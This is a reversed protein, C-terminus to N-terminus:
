AASQLRRRSDSASVGACLGELISGLLRATTQTADDKHPNYETLAFSRVSPYRTLFGNFCALAAERTLGGPLHYGTGPADAPDFADLDIQLCVADVRATLEDMVQSMVAAFGRENVERMYHIRVGLRELLQQEEAEYDRACVIAVDRPDLTAGEAALKTLQADGHGLLAAVGMGHTNGSPTSDDTHGDLHADVYVLGIRRGAGIAARVGAVEGIAHSHDGGIVVPLAGGEIAQRVEQKLAANIPLTRAVKLGTKERISQWGPLPAPNEERLIRQWHCTMGATQAFRELGFARLADPGDACGYDEAGLGFAYGILAITPCHSM